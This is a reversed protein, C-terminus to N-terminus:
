IVGASHLCTASPVPCRASRAAPRTAQGQRPSITCPPPLSSEEPQRGAPSLRNDGSASPCPSRAGTVSSTGAKKRQSYRKSLRGKATIAPILSSHTIANHMGNIIQGSGKTRGTRKRVVGTLSLNRYVPLMSYRRINRRMPQSYRIIILIDANPHRCPLTRTVFAPM